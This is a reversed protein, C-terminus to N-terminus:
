NNLYTNKKVEPALVGEYSRHHCWRSHCMDGKDMLKGRSLYERQVFISQVRLRHEICMTECPTCIVWRVWMCTCIVVCNTYSVNKRCQEVRPRSRFWGVVRIEINRGNCWGNSQSIGCEANAIVGSGVFEPVSRELPCQGDRSMSVLDTNAEMFVKRFM